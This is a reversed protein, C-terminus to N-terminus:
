RLIVSWFGYRTYLNEKTWSKLASDAYTHKSM